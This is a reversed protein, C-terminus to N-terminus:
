RGWLQQTARRAGEGLAELKAWMIQPHVRRIFAGQAFGCDTSAIVNERGVLKAYQVIRQAVLDPHEVTNTVHSIVGPIIIKGDPVKVDEWVAWEHAHAPNAAEVSLAGSHVGLVLDVIDKLPVDTTHPGHWSGWCLHYRIRDPPLGDLAHNLAEIRLSAFKRYEEITPEPDHMDYQVVVRPDDLQLIFGAEVVARYEEKMADAIAFLFEEDNKYYENRRQLEITGPACAPVFGEELGAADLAARFNAFDIKLQEQGRYTIPGTCVMTTPSGGSPVQTVSREMKEMEDYAAGFRKRDRGRSPTTGLIPGMPRAEFGTLRDNVYGSFSSKSYEGDSPIDIGCEAEHKVADVIASRVRRQLEADDYPQGSEKLRMLEIVVDPRVLSGVITTLIRDTSRKM